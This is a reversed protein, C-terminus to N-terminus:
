RIAAWRSGDLKWGSFTYRGTVNGYEDTEEITQNATYTGDVTYSQGKVYTGDDTPLTVNEPVNETGWNYTVTYVTVPATPSDSLTTTGSQPREKGVTYGTLTASANTAYYQQDADWQTYSADPKIPITIVLKCGSYQTQGNDLTTETAANASYDFGTVEIGKEKNLSVKVGEPNYMPNEENFIYGNENRGICPVTYVTVGDVTGNGNDSVSDAFTFMASMTDTLKTNAGANVESTPILSPIKNFIDKLDEASSATMYYKDSAQSDFDVNFKAGWGLIGNDGEATADPYNSSAARMYQGIKSDDSPKNNFVGVTFITVGDQKMAYATNIADAAVENEFSNGSTPEGDTFLIVVKGANRGTDSLIDKAKELGSDARTAGSGNLGDVIRNLSAVGEENVATLSCRMSAGSAFTVISIRQVNEETATEPMAEAVQQIFSKVATQLASMKSPGKFGSIPDKMSGSTDLVLVIDMPASTVVTEAEDTVYAELTLTKGDESVAKSINVHGTEDTVSVKPVQETAGPVAGTQNNGAALASVPLLSVIMCLSMVAALLRKKM